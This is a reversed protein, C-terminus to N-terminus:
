QFDSFEVLTVPANELGHFHRVQALVTNMLAQQRAALQEDNPPQPPGAPSSAEGTTPTPASAVSSAESASAEPKNDVLPRGYFGAVLGIVLMVIGVIPTAWSQINITLATPRSELEISEDEEFEDDEKEAADHPKPLSEPEIDLEAPVGSEVIIEEGPISNDIHKIDKDEEMSRGNYAVKVREM